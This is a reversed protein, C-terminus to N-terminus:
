VRLGLAVWRSDGSCAHVPCGSQVRGQGEGEEEELAGCKPGWEGHLFTEPWVLCADGMASCLLAGQLLQTCVGSSPVTGLFLVLCLVPLCKLLAEPWSPQPDPM